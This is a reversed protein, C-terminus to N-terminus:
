RSFVWCVGCVSGTLAPDYVLNDCDDNACRDWKASM